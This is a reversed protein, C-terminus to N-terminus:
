EGSGSLFQSETTQQSINSIESQSTIQNPIAIVTNHVKVTKRKPSCKEPSLHRSSNLDGRRTLRYRENSM